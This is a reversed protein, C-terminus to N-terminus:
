HKPQQADKAKQEAAEADAKSMGLRVRQLIGDVINHYDLLITHRGAPVQVTGGIEVVVEEKQFRPKQAASSAELELQVDCEGTVLKDLRGAPRGNLLVGFSPPVRDKSLYRARL